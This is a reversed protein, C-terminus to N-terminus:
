FGGAQGPADPHGRQPGGTGAIGFPADRLVGVIRIRDRSASLNVRRGIPNGDPFYRNMFTENVMAVRPAAATDDFAIARGKVLPM